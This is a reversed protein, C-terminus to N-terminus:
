LRKYAINFAGKSSDIGIYRRGLRKAVVCTTGSGCFPDLVLEGENSSAKIIRELLAEPKQTPYGTKEKSFSKIQISDLVDEKHCNWMDEIPIGKGTPKKGDRRLYDKRYPIYAKNFRAIAEESKVYYLIIDHNRIWGRKQTKYGSVWGIRWVIENRFNGQGFIEDLMVKLYHSVTPDCHLYLSGTPKLLDHLRSLRKRMFDMYEEWEWKDEFAVDWSDPLLYTQGSNFPPDLYILDISEEPWWETVEM